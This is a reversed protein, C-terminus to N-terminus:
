IILSLSMSAEQLPLEVVEVTSCFVISVTSSISFMESFM